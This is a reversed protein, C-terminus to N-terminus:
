VVIHKEGTHYILHINLSVENICNYDCETCTTKFESAYVYETCKYKMLDEIHM